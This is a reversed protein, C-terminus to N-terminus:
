PVAAARTNPSRNKRLLSGATPDTAAKAVNPTPKTNRGSPPISKPWMPSRIPRRAVSTSVVSIM